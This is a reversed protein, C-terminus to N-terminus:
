EHSTINWKGIAAYTELVYRRTDQDLIYLSIYLDLWQYLEFPVIFRRSVTRCFHLDVNERIM